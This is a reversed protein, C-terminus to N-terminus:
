KNHNKLMAKTILDHIEKKIDSDRFLNKTYLWNKHKPGIDVLGSREKHDRTTIDISVKNNTIIDLKPISWNINPSDKRNDDIINYLRENTSVLWTQQETTKFIKLAIAQDLKEINSNYYESNKVFQIIEDKSKISVHQEFKLKHELITPLKKESKFEVRASVFFVGWGKRSLPFGRRGLAEHMIRKESDYVGNRETVKVVPPNFTPHLQYIVERIDDLENEMDAELFVTWEWWSTKGKKGIFHSENKLQITM